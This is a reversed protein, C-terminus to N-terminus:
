GVVTATASDKAKSPTCTLAVKYDGPPTLAPVKVRARAVGDNLSVDASKSLFRSTIAVHATTDTPRCTLKVDIHEGAEVKAPVEVSATPAAETGPGSAAGALLFLGGCLLGVVALRAMIRM